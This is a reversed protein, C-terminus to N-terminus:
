KGYQMYYLVYKEWLICIKKNRKTSLTFDEKQGYATHRIQGIKSRARKYIEGANAIIYQFQVREPSRM